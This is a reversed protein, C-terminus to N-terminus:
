YVFIERVLIVRNFIICDFPILRFFIPIVLRWTYHGAIKFALSCPFYSRDIVHLVWSGKKKMLFTFIVALATLHSTQM